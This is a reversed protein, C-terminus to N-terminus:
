NLCLTTKYGNLHPYFYKTTSFILIFCWAVGCKRFFEDFWILESNWDKHYDVFFFRFISICCFVRWLSYIGFNIHFWRNKKWSLIKPSEETSRWSNAILIWYLIAEGDHKPKTAYEFRQEIWMFSIQGCSQMFFAFFLNERFNKKNKNVKSNHKYM